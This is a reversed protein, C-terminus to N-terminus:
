ATRRRRAVAVLGLGGFALLVLTAPEPVATGVAVKLSPLVSAAAMTNQASGTPPPGGSGNDVAYNLPFLNVSSGGPTLIAQLYGGGTTTSWRGTALTLAGGPSVPGWFQGTAATTLGDGVRVVTPDNNNAASITDQSAGIGTLNPAAATGTSRFLAYPPNSVALTASSTAAKLATAQGGTLTMNQGDGPLGDVDVSFSAIGLSQNDSLTATLAWTGTSQKPDSTTLTLQVNTAWSAAAGLALFAIGALFFRRIM